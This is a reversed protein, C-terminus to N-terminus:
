ITSILWLYLFFCMYDCKQNITKGGMHNIKPPYSQTRHRDLKAIKNNRDQEFGIEKTGAM